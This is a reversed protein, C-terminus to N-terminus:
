RFFSLESWCDDPTSAVADHVGVSSSLGVHEDSACPYVPVSAVGACFPLDISTCKRLFYVLGVTNVVSALSRPDVLRRFCLVAGAVRCGASVGATM